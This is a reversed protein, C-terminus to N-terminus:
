LDHLLPVARRGADIGAYEETVHTFEPALPTGTNEFYNVTGSAEGVLLDLDGDGDLDGLAPTANRGRPLQAIVSDVLTLEISAGGENRYYALRDAWGGVIADLHGDGDLDGFAPVPNYGPGVDMTGAHRFSPATATGENVFITLDGNQPDDQAIKNSVLLDLDGDGDLDVLVPVSESGVDIMSIFRSTRPEFRGPTVQELLHLNDISTTNPNFAGGLVGVLLDPLGNGTVDGLTPANYGSTRLPAGLPFPQPQGRFAPSQCTGTNELLLIGPEFFD